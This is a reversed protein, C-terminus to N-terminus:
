FEFPPPQGDILWAKAAFPTTIIIPCSRGPFTASVVDALGAQDHRLITADLDARPGPEFDRINNTVLLRAKGAVAAEWVGQDEKDRVPAVGGGLVGTAPLGGNMAVLEIADRALDATDASIEPFRCLVDHLTDLMVHSIVLQLPGIASRGDTVCRVLGTAASTTRGRVLALYHNVWVNVDLLIRM